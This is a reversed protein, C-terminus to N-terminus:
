QDNPDIDRGSWHKFEKPGYGTDAKFEEYLNGHPIASNDYVYSSMHVYNMKLEKFKEEDAAVEGRLYQLYWQCLPDLKPLTTASLIVGSFDIPKTLDMQHVNINDVVYSNDIEARAMQREYKEFDFDDEGHRAYKLKLKDPTIPEEYYKKVDFAGEELPKLKVGANVAKEYMLHLAVVSLGPKIERHCAFVFSGIVGSGHQHYLKKPEDNTLYITEPDILSEQKFVYFASERADERERDIDKKTYSPPYTFWREHTYVESANAFAYGGGVDAHAGIMFMEKYDDRSVAGENLISRLPFMERYENHACLHFVNDFIGRMLAVQNKTQEVTLYHPESIPRLPPIFVHALNQWNEIAVVTDFIGMFRYHINVPIDANLLRTAFVRATASGRSFGFVDITVEDLYPGHETTVKEIEAKLKKIAQNARQNVGTEGIGLGKGRLSDDEGTTTGCGEIYIKKIMEGDDCAYNDIEYVQHLWAVNTYWDRHSCSRDHNGEALGANFLEINHFNNNTGDFFLGVTLRTVPCSQIPSGAANQTSMDDSFKNM